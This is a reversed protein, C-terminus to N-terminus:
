GAVILYTTQAVPIPTLVDYATFLLFIFYNATIQFITSMRFLKQLFSLFFFLRPLLSLGVPNGYPLSFIGSNSLPLV